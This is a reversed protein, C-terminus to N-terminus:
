SGARPLVSEAEAVIRRAAAAYEGEENWLVLFQRMASAAGQQDGRAFQIKGLLYHASPYKPDLERVREVLPFAEDSRGSHDLGEALAYLVAPSSDHIAALRRLFDLGEDVRGLRVLLNGANAGAEVMGPALELAERYHVLAGEADGQRELAAALNNHALAYGPSLEVALRFEQQAPPYEGARYLSLGLNNRVLASGPSTRAMNSFLRFDDHWVLTRRLSLGGLALVLVLGAALLRRPPLGFGDREVFTATFRAVLLALGVSPLYLFRDAMLVDGFRGFALVPALGLFIWVIWFTLNTRRRGVGITVLFVIALMTASLLALPSLVSTVAQYPYHADLGVPLILLTLYRAVVFSATALFSEVNLVFLPSAGQGLVAGRAFMYLGLVPLFPFTTACASLFRHRKGSQSLWSHVMVLLPLTAAMEKSFLALAFLLWSASRLRTIGKREGGQRYLLFSGLCFLACLLDTRGSIWAVSEVHVPHVAFIAAGALAARPDIREQRALRYVLWCCAFHLLLNTLHFGFPRKGWLAYDLAYTLSVVPRFFSRFRDHRDGTEWFSSTLVEYIESPAQVLRNETILPADDWVFDGALGAGLSLLVLLALLPLALREARQAHFEM